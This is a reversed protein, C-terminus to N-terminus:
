VKETVANTNYKGRGDVTQQMAPSVEVAEATDQAVAIEAKVEEEPKDMYEKINKLTTLAGISQALQAKLNEVNNEMATIDSVILEKTVQM